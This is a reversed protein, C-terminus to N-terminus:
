EYQRHFYEIGDEPCFYTRIYGDSSVVVFENTRELYYVDDGDEKEIAHLTDKDNIVRNAGKLYKEASKYKMYIGHKEYHDELLQRSRFRYEHATEEFEPEEAEPESEVSIREETEYTDTISEEPEYEAQVSEVTEYEDSVSEVGDLDISIVVFYAIFGLILSKFVAKLIFGKDQGKKKKNQRLNVALNYVAVIVGICIALMGINM